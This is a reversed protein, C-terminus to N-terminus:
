SDHEIRIFCRYPGKRCERLSFTRRCAHSFSVAARRRWRWFCLQLDHGNFALNHIFADIIFRNFNLSGMNNYDSTPRGLKLNFVMNCRSMGLMSSPTIRAHSCTPAPLCPLNSGPRSSSSGITAISYSSPVSSSSSSSSSSVVCFANSM